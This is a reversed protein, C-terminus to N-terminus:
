NDDKEKKQEKDRQHLIIDGTDPDRILIHSITMVNTEDVLGNDETM